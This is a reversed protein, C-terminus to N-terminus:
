ARTLRSIRANPSPHTMRLTHLFGQEPVFVKTENLAAILGDGYGLDSAYQDAEYVNQRSEFAIFLTCITTWIWVLATTLGSAIWGGLKLSGKSSFMSFVSSIGVAIWKFMQLILWFFLFLPNACGGIMMTVNHYLALHAIEDALIGEIQDFPLEMLASSVAITHMGIACACPLPSNLEKWRITIKKNPNRAHIRDIIEEAVPQLDEVIVANLPSAAGSFLCLFWEGVPSLAVATCIIYLVYFGTISSPHERTIYWMVFLQLAVFLLLGIHSKAIFKQFKEM